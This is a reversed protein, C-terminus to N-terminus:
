SLLAIGWGCSEASTSNGNALGIALAAVAIKGAVDWKADSDIRQAIWEAQQPPINLGMNTTAVMSPLSMLNIKGNIINQRTTAIDSLVGGTAERLKATQQAETLANFEAPNVRSLLPYQSLIQARQAELENKQKLWKEPDPGPAPAPVGPTQRVGTRGLAAIQADIEALQRSTQLIRSRQAGLTNGQLLKQQQKAELESQALTNFATDRLALNYQRFFQERNGTLNVLGQGFANTHGAYM